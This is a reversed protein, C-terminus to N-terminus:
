LRSGLALVELELLSQTRPQQLLKDQVICLVVLAQVALCMRVAVAVALLLL